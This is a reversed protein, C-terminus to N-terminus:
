RVQLARGSSPGVRRLVRVRNRYVGQKFVEVTMEDGGVTVEGSLGGTSKFSFVDGAIAGEISRSVMGDPRATGKVTPGEQHLELWLGQSGTGAKLDAIGFWVGTVDVTVLTRDIWDPRTCGSNSVLAAVLIVAAVANM